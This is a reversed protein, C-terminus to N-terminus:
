NYIWFGLDRGPQLWIFQPIILVWVNPNQELPWPCLVPGPNRQRRSAKRGSCLDRGPVECGLKFLITLVRATVKCVGNWFQSERLCTMTGRIYLASLKVSHYEEQTQYNTKPPLLNLIENWCWNCLPMTHSSPSGAMVPLTFAAQQGSGFEMDFWPTSGASTM